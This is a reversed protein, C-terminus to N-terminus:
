VSYIICPDGKTRISTLALELLDKNQTTSVGGDLLYVFLANGRGYQVASYLANNGQQDVVFM